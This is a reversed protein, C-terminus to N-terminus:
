LLAKRSRALSPFEFGVIRFRGGRDAGNATDDACLLSLLLEFDRRDKAKREKEAQGWKENEVSSYLTYVYPAGRATALVSCDESAGLPKLPISEAGFSDDFVKKVLETSKM